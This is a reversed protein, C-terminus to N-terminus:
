GEGLLQRSDELPPAMVTSMVLNGAGGGPQRAWGNLLHGAARQRGHLDPAMSVSAPPTDLASAMAAALTEPSLLDPQVWQVWGRHAFSRARMQQEASPGSRPVLLARAGLSLIEATTNYGAMAVVLDAAGLYSPSDSVTPILHVPLDGVLLQLRAREEEPLFPGTVLVV